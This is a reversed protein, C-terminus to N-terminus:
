IPRSILSKATELFALDRKQIFKGELNDPLDNKLLTIAEDINKAKLETMGEALEGEELASPQQEDVQRALFCYSTQKLKEFNRHEVIEGLQSIIEARCGVEELLERALASEVDEGADIGGGPLKHYGHLGVNMLYVQGLDDLLVARAAERTKYNSFDVKASELVFDQEKIVLLLNM